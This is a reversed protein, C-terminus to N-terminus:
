LLTPCDLMARGCYIVGPELAAALWALSFLLGAGTALLFRVTEDLNSMAGEMM